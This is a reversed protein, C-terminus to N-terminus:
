KLNKEAKCISSRTRAHYLTFNKKDLPQMRQQSRYLVLCCAVCVPPRASSIFLSPAQSKLQCAYQMILKWALFFKFKTTSM